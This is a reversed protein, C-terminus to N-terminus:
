NDSKTFNKLFKGLFLQDLGKPKPPPTSASSPQTATPQVTQNAAPVSSNNSQTINGVATSSSSELSTSYTDRLHRLLMNSVFTRSDTNALTPTVTSNGTTTTTAARSQSTSPIQYTHDSLSDLTSTITEEIQANSAAQRPHDVLSKSRPLNREKSAMLRNLSALENILRDMQISRDDLSASKSVKRSEAGNESLTSNKMPASRELAPTSREPIPTSKEPNSTSKELVATSTETVPTPRRLVIKESVITSKEPIPAPDATKKSETAKETTNVESPITKSLDQRNGTPIVGSETRVQEDPVKKRLEDLYAEYKLLKGYMDNFNAMFIQEEGTFFLDVDVTAASPQKNLMASILTRLRFRYKINIPNVRELLQVIRCYLALMSFQLYNTEVKKLITMLLPVFEQARTKLKDAFDKEARRAESSAMEPQLLQGVKQLQEERIIDYTILLHLEDVLKPMKMCTLESFFKDFCKITEDDLPQETIQVPPDTLTSTQHGLQPIVDSPLAITYIPVRNSNQNTTWQKNLRVLKPQNFNAKTNSPLVNTTNASIASTVFMTPQFNSPPMISNICVNAPQIMTSKSSQPTLVSSQNSSIPMQSSSSTLTKGISSPKQPAAKTANVHVKKLNLIIRPRTQGDVNMAKVIGTITGKKFVNPLPVSSDKTQKTEKTSTSPNTNAIHESKEKEASHPSPKTVLKPKQKLKNQQQDLHVKDPQCITDKRTKLAYEFDSNLKNLANDPISGNNVVGLEFLSKIRIKGVNTNASPAPCAVDHESRESVEDTKEATTANRYSSQGPTETGKHSSPVLQISSVLDKRDNTPQPTESESDSSLTIVEKYINRPKAELCRDVTLKTSPKAELSIDQTLEASPNVLTTEVSPTAELHKDLIPELSTRSKPHEKLIKNLTAVTSVEASLLDLCQTDSTSQKDDTAEENSESDSSDNSSSQSSNSSSSSSEKGFTLECGPNTESVEKRSEATAEAGTVKQKNGKVIQNQGKFRYESGGFRVRIGKPSGQNTSSPPKLTSPEDSEEESSSLTHAQRNPKIIRPISIVSSEKILMNRDTSKNDSPAKDVKNKDLNSNEDSFYHKQIDSDRCPEKLSLHLKDNKIIADPNRKSHCIVSSRHSVKSNDRNKDTTPYVPTKSQNLGCNGVNTQSSAVGENSQKLLRAEKSANYDEDRVSYFPIVLKSNENTQNGAVIHSRSDITSLVNVPTEKTTSQAVATTNSHSVPLPDTLTDSITGSRLRDTGEVFKRLESELSDNSSTVNSFLGEKLPNISPSYSKLGPNSLPSVSPSAVASGSALYQNTPLMYPIFNNSPMPHLTPCYMLPKTNPLESPNKTLKSLKFPNKEMESLINGLIDNPLSPEAINETAEDKGSSGEAKRCTELSERHDADQLNTQQISERRNHAVRVKNSISSQEEKSHTLSLNIDLSTKTEQTRSQGSECDDNNRSDHSPSCYVNLNVTYNNEVPKRNGVDFGADSEERQENQGKSFFTNEKTKNDKQKCFEKPTILSQKTCSNEKDKDIRNSINNIQKRIKVEALNSSAFQKKLNSVISKHYTSSPKPQNQKIKVNAINTWASFNVKVPEKNHKGNVPEKNLSPKGVKKGSIKPKGFIFDKSGQQSTDLGALNGDCDRQNEETKNNTVTHFLHEDESSSSIYHLSKRKPKCVKLKVQAKKPKSAIKEAESDNGSSSTSLDHLRSGGVYPVKSENEEDSSDLFRAPDVIIDESGEVIQVPEAIAIPLIPQVPELPPKAAKRKRKPKVKALKKLSGGFLFSAPNAYQMEICQSKLSELSIKTKKKISNDIQNEKPKNDVSLEVKKNSDKKNKKQKLEPKIKGVNNVVAKQCSKVKRKKDKFSENQDIVELEEDSFQLKRKLGKRKNSKSQFVQAHEEEEDESDDSVMPYPFRLEWVEGTPLSPPNIAASEGDLDDEESSLVSLTKLWTKRKRSREEASPNRYFICYTYFKWYKSILLSWIM